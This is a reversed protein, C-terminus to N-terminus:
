PLEAVIAYRSQRADPIYVRRELVGADLLRGTADRVTRQPLRTEVSLAQQTLPGEHKIVTLVLKASPTLDRVQDESLTPTEEEASEELQVSEATVTM